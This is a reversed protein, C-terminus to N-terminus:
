EGSLDISRQRDSYQQKKKKRGRSLSEPEGDHIPRAEIPLCLGGKLEFGAPCEIAAFATRSMSRDAMRITYQAGRPGTMARYIDEWHALVQPGYFALGSRRVVPSICILTVEHIRCILRMSELRPCQKGMDGSLVSWRRDRALEPIFEHDKWRSNPGFRDKYHVLNAAQGAVEIHPRLYVTNLDYALCEDVLLQHQISTV